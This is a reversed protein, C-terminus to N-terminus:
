PLQLRIGVADAENPDRLANTRLLDREAAERSSFDIRATYNRAFQLTAILSQFNGNHTASKLAMLYNNRFVTPVVIRVEDAHVLEANMMLRAIRGNGDGFPHVEAVLFMMYVARAFPEILLAGAALGAVLTSVVLEPEVFVTAGARNQRLKWKGPRAEPRGALLTAHREQLLKLFSEPGAPLRRMEDEDATLRYTGLIDHADAPRGAPLRHDFIIEAAEDLTFETGEIYNSFYAEYFPLLRRRAEDAPLAPLPQPPVRSLEEALRKFLDLRRVDYAEGIARARLADSAVDEAPGTTLAAAIIRNLRDFQKRRGTQEAIDRAQDRVQNLVGEGQQELLDSIWREVEELSLQRRSRRDLNDLLGRAVSPLVIGTPLVTDGALPGPGPRPIITLGPLALPRTRSHIVFLRGEDDPRMSRASGDAVIAGPLEHAAITMWYRLVVREAAEHVRGTYIGPGLRRLTGSQVARTLASRHENASFVIDPWAPAPMSAESNLQLM